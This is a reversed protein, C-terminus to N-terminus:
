LLWKLISDIITILFAALLTTGFGKIEFDDILLDTIWLLFANIVFKFLGFTIFMLPFTIIVLLWGVLLNIVSYVLAVILATGFNKIKINPVLQAVIFVTV